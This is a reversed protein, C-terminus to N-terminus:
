SQGARLHDERWPNGPHGRDGIRRHRAGPPGAPNIVEITGGALGDVFLGGIYLRTQM